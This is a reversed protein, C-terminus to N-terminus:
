GHNNDTILIVLRSRYTMDIRADEPIIKDLEEHVKEQINEHLLMYLFSFGLSKSTTEAGATFLINKLFLFECIWM